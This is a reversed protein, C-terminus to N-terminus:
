FLFRKPRPNPAAAASLSAFDIGYLGRTIKAEPMGIRRLYQFSREGAVIARDFRSILRRLTFRRIQQLLTERWPTDVGIWKPISDFNEDFALSRYPPHSWGTMYLIDPNSQKVLSSILAADAREAPSLIRCDIGAVLDRAFTNNGPDFAIVHLEVGPTTSLARWCAAMYGSIDGWCLTLRM